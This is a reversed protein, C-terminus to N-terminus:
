GPTANPNVLYFFGNVNIPSLGGSVTECASTLVPQEQSCFFSVSHFPWLACWCFFTCLGFSLCNMPSLSCHSFSCHPLSSASTKLGGPTSICIKHMAQNISWVKFAATACDVQPTHPDNLLFNLSSPKRKCSRWIWLQKLWDLVLFGM